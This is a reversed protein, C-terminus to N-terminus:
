IPKAYAGYNEAAWREHGRTWVYLDALLCCRRPDRALDECQAHDVVSLVRLPSINFRQGKYSLSKGDLVKKMVNDNFDAIEPWAEFLKRGVLDPHRSGAFRAYSDNYIMVGDSGWLLAMPVPSRVVVATATMLSHPWKEIPGLTTAAWDFEAIRRSMENGDTLFAPVIM